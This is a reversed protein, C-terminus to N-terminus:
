TFCARNGRQRGGRDGGARRRDDAPDPRQHAQRPGDGNRRGYEDIWQPLRAIAGIEELWALRNRVTQQSLETDEALTPISV